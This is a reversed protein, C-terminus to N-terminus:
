HILWKRLLKQCKSNLSYIRTLAQGNKLAKELSTAGPPELFLYRTSGTEIQTYKAIITQVGIREELVGQQILFREPCNTVLASATLFSQLGKKEKVLEREQRRRAPTRPIFAGFATIIGSQVHRLSSNVTSLTVQAMYRKQTFKHIVNQLTPENAVFIRPFKEPESLHCTPLTAYHPRWLLIMENPDIVCSALQEDLLSYCPKAQEGNEQISEWRVRRFVRWVPPYIMLSELPQRRLGQSQIRKTLFNYLQKSSFEAGRIVEVM